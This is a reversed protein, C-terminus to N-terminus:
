REQMKKKTHTCMSLPSIHRNTHVTLDNWDKARESASFVHLPGSCRYHWTLSAFLGRGQVAPQPLKHTHTFWASAKQTDLAPWSKYCINSFSLSSSSFASPSHVWPHLQLSLQLDHFITPRFILSSFRPVASHSICPSPSSARPASLNLHLILAKKCDLGHCLDM